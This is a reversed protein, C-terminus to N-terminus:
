LYASHRGSRRERGAHTVTCSQTGVLNCGMVVLEGAAEFTIQRLEAIVKLSPVPFAPEAIGLILPDPEKAPDHVVVCSAGRQEVCIRCGGEIWKANVLVRGRHNIFNKDRGM